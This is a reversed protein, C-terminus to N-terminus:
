DSSSLFRSRSGLCERLRDKAKYCLNHIARETRGMQEAAAAVSRGEIYVMWVAQRYDEPLESLASQVAAVAEHRAASRSPTQGPLAILDLIAVMSDEIHRPFPSVAFNGGGRRDARRMKIADRLKRIAITKVWRDFSGPGRFEFSNIHRFVEVHAEQVIDDADITGKLDAPIRHALYACVGARSETLLVTLAVVDGSIARKLMEPQQTDEVM